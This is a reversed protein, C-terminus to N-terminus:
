GGLPPRPWVQSLITLILAAPVVAAASTLTDASLRDMHDRLRDVLLLAVTCGIIAAGVAPWKQERRHHYYWNGLFMVAPMPVPLGEGGTIRLVAFAGGLLLWVGTVLRLAQKWTIRRSM